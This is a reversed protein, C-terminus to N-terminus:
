PQAGCSIKRRERKKKECVTASELSVPRSTATSSLPKVRLKTERTGETKTEQLGLKTIPRCFVTPPKPQEGGCEDVIRRLVLRGTGERGAINGWIWYELVAFGDRWVVSCLSRRRSRPTEKGQGPKYTDPQLTMRGTEGGRM